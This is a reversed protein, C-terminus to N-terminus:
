DKKIRGDCEATFNHHECEDVTLTVKAHLHRALWEVIVALMTQVTPPPINYKAM